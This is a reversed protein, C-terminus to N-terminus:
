SPKSPDDDSRFFSGVFGAASSIPGGATELARRLAVVPAVVNQMNDNVSASLGNVSDVLRMIARTLSVLSYIAIPAAIVFMLAAVILAVDRIDQLDM